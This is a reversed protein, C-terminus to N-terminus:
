TQNNEAFHCKRLNGRLYWPLNSLIGMELFENAAGYRLKRQASDSGDLKERNIWPLFSPRRSEEPNWSCQSEAGDAQKDGPPLM